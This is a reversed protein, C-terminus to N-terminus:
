RRLDLLQLLLQLIGPAVQRGGSLFGFVRRLLKLVPYWQLGGPEPTGTSPVLAPDFSLEGLVPVYGEEANAAQLYADSVGHPMCSLAFAPVPLFVLELVLLRM